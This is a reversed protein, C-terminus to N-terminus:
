RRVPRWAQAAAIRAGTSPHTHFLYEVVPSPREDSLNKAGLRKMASVFASVNGTMELAYRDARREHARSVANVLPTLATWVLGAVLAVLPLAAIDAKGSLGLPQWSRTLVVDSAWAGAVLVLAQVAMSTWLDHYVHHALEHALIVEIEDDSHEALLTDSLLIRRTRGLGTLAANAKRTHAGLHWEFVGLVDTRARHALQMVRRVLAERHVPECAALAPLVLVPAVQTLVVLFGVAGVAAIAWWARPFWEVALAIGLGGILLMVLRLGAAKAHDALWQSTPQVSLGYRRELVVGHYFATPLTLTELALWCVAVFCAAALARSGGTVGLALSRLGAAAGTALMLLFFTAIVVTGGASAQRRLRQYRTARDENM